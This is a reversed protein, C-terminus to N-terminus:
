LHQPCKMLAVSVASINLGESTEIVTKVKKVGYKASADSYSLLLAKYNDNGESRYECFNDGITNLLAILTLEIM